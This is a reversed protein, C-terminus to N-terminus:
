TTATFPKRAKIDWNESATQYLTKAKKKFDDYFLYPQRLVAEMTCRYRNIGPFYSGPPLYRRLHRLGSLYRCRDRVQRRLPRYSEVPCADACEGCAICTDKNIQYAM